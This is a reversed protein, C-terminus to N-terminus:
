NDDLYLEILGEPAQIQITRTKSDFSLIIEEVIPILVEKGNSVVKLVDQQPLEMVEEVPGLLGYNADTVTFGIIESPNFTKTKKDSAVKPLYVERNTFWAATEPSDVEEFKVRLEEHSLEEFWEMFYPIMYDNVGVFLAKQQEVADFLDPRIHIVVAGDKGHVKSIRGLLFTEEKNM